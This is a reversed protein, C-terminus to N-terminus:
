TFKAGFFIMKYAGLEFSGNPKQYNLKNEYFKEVIIKIKEVQFSFLNLGFEM